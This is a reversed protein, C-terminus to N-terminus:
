LAPTGLEFTVQVGDPLQDQFNTTDPCPSRGTSTLQMRNAAVGQEQLRKAVAQAYREALSHSYEDSIERGTQGCLHLSLHPWHPLLAPVTDALQKLTGLTEPMPRGTDDFALFAGGRRKGTALLQLRYPSCAGESEKSLQAPYPVGVSGSIPEWVKFKMAPSYPFRHDDFANSGLDFRAMVDKDEVGAIRAIGIRTEYRCPGGVMVEASTLVPLLGVIILWAGRHM